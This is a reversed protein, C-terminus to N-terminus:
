RAAPWGGHLKRSITGSPQVSAEIVHVDALPALWVATSTPAAVVDTVSTAPSVTVQVYASLSVGGFAPSLRSLIVSPATPVKVQSTVFAAPPRTPADGRLGPLLVDRGGARGVEREVGAGVRDPLVQGLGGASRPRQVAHRAVPLEDGVHLGHGDRAAPTPAKQVNVFRKVGSPM